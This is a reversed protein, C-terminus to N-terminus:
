HVTVKVKSMKVRFDGRTYFMQMPIVIGPKLSVGSPQVFNTLTKTYRVTVNVKSGLFLWTPIIRGLKLSIGSPQLFNHDVELNKTLTKKQRKCPDLVGMPIFRGIKLSIWSPQIFNHGVELKKTLTKQITCQSRSKQGKSGFTLM